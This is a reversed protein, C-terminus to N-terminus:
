IFKHNSDFVYISYNSKLNVILCSLKCHLYFYISVDVNGYHIAESDRNERSGTERMGVKSQFLNISAFFVSILCACYLVFCMSTYITENM